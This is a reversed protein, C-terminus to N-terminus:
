TSYSTQAHLHCSLSAGPVPVPSWVRAGSWSGGHPQVGERGRGGGRGRGVRRRQGIGFPGHQLRKHLAGGGRLPAPWGLVGQAGDDVRDAVQDAGAAGPPQQGVVEGWGPVTYQHNALHAASPVRSRMWSARRSCTRTWAPRLGAGDAATMSEWDTRAASVTGRALRPQSAPLFTLPRLRCRATSITRLRGPWDETSTSGRLHTTSRVKHAALRETTDGAYGPPVRLSTGPDLPQGPDSLHLPCCCAQM